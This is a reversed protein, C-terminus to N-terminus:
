LASFKSFWTVRAYNLCVTHAVNIKWEELIFIERRRDNVRIHERDTQRYPLQQYLGPFLNDLLWRIEYKFESKGEQDPYFITSDNIAFSAHPADKEQSNWWVGLLKSKDITRNTPVSQASTAKKTATTDAKSNLDTPSSSCSCLLALSSFTTFTANRM